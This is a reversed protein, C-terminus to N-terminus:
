FIDTNTSSALDPDTNSTYAIETSEPSFSYTESGGLSFPPVDRDGPTLDKPTGLPTGGNLSQILLHSRRAGQYTTWHRYLLHTYVRAHMKGAAEQDLKTKNCGADYDSGPKVGAAMCEPYVLSTFLLLKGDPSVIEGDAETPLNTLQRADSGDPQMSWIQSGSSRNSTFIIRKSDPTWRPRANQSGDQTIQRPAGGSLSVTYIQTPMGNGAMDVTQVTFAVTAGDPSVQPDSIRGLKMMEDFTFPAKSAAVLPGQMLATLVAFAAALRM